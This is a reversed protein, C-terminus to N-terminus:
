GELEHDNAGTTSLEVPNPLLDIRSRESDDHISGKRQFIRRFGM